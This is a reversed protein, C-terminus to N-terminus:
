DFLLALAVDLQLLIQLDLSLYSLSPLLLPDVLLIRRGIPALLRAFLEEGGERKGVHVTTQM